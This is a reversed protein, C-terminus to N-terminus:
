PQLESLQAMVNLDDGHAQSLQKTSTSNRSAWALVTRCTEQPIRCWKFKPKHLETWSISDAYGSEMLAPTDFKALQINFYAEYSVHVHSRLM